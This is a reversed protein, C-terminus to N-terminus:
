VKPRGFQKVSFKNFAVMTTKHGGPTYIVKDDVLLPSEAIEWRAYAGGFEKLADVKWLIEQKNADICVVQGRGSIVYIRNDEITPTGRTEPFSQRCALGYPLQWLQNGNQDIATLFEISDKKGSVYAIGNHVTVSSYGDGVGEFDWLMEPGEEIWSKLLNKEPYCGDRDPGRWQDIGDISFVEISFILVTILCFIYKMNLIKFKEVTQNGGSILLISNNVLIKIHV